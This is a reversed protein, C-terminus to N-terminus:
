NNESNDFVIRYKPSYKDNPNDKSINKEINSENSLLKWNENNFIEDSSYTRISNEENDSSELNMLKITEKVTSSSNRCCGLVFWPLAASPHLDTFHPITWKSNGNRDIRTFAYNNLLYSASIISCGYQEKSFTIKCFNGKHKFQKNSYYNYLLYLPIGGINKAYTILDNIQDGHEMAKYTNTNYILKAQLPALIYGNNTKIVLEIDNGNNPENIAELMRIPINPFVEIFKNIEFLINQTITPEHIKLGKRTRAFEIRQWTDFSILQLLNCLTPYHELEKILRKYEDM